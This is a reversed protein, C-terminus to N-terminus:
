TATWGSPSSASTTSNQRNDGARLDHFVGGLVRLMGVSGLLSSRRLQQAVTLEDAKREAEPDDETVAALGVFANSVHHSDRTLRIDRSLWRTM